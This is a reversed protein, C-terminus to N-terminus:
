KASVYWAGWVRGATVPGKQLRTARVRQSHRHRRLHRPWARAQGLVWVQGPGRAWVPVSGQGLVMALEPVWALGQVLVWGLAMEQVQVQVQVQGWVPELM